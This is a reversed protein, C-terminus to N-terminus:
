HPVTALSSQVDRPIHSVAMLLAAPSSARPSDETNGTFHQAHTTVVEGFLVKQGFDCLKTTIRGQAAECSSGVWESSTGKQCLLLKISGLM